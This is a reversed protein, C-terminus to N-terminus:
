SSHLLLWCSSVTRHTQTLLDAAAIVVVGSGWASRLGRPRFVQRPLGDATFDAKRKSLRDLHSGIETRCIGLNGTMSNGKQKKKKAIEREPARWRKESQRKLKVGRKWPRGPCGCSISREGRKRLMMWWELREARQHGHVARLWVGVPSLPRWGGGSRRREPDSFGGRRREEPAMRVWCM